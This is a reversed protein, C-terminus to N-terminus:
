YLLRAARSSSKALKGKRGRSGAASFPRSFACHSASGQSGFVTVEFHTCTHLSARAPMSSEEGVHRVNTFAVYINTKFSREARTYAPFCGFLTTARSLLVHVFMSSLQVRDVRHVHRLLQVNQSAFPRAKVDTRTILPSQVSPQCFMQPSHASRKRANEYGDIYMLNSIRTIGAVFVRHDFFVHHDVADVVDSSSREALHAKGMMVHLCQASLETMSTTLAESTPDDTM